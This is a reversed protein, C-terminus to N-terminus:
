RTWKKVFKEAKKKTAPRTNKLEGKVFEMINKKNRTDKFYEGFSLIVKGKIINRCELSHHTKDISMLRNTIKTQLKPKALAIVGSLGAINSATIMSEDDLLRYFRDFIKDFKNKTDVRTLNAIINIGISKMFTNDSKLLKIFDDWKPYIVKPNEKSLIMLAKGCKYKIPPKDSTLGKVVEILLKKDKSAKKAISEVNVNKKEIMNDDECDPIPKVKEIYAIRNM